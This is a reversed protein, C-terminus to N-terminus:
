HKATNCSREASGAVLLATAINISIAAVAHALRTVALRKVPMPITKSREVRDQRLV